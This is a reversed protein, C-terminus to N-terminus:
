LRCDFFKYFTRSRLWFWGVSGVGSGVAQRNHHPCKARVHIANNFRASYRDAPNGACKWRQNWVSCDSLYPGNVNSFLQMDTRYTTYGFHLELKTGGTTHIADRSTINAFFVITRWHNSWLLFLKTQPPMAAFHTSHIAQPMAALNNSFAHHFNFRQYTNLSSTANGSIANRIGCSWVLLSHM